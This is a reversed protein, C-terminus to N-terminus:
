IPQVAQARPVLSLRAPKAQALAILDKVSKVDLAPAVILVAAPFGLQTIGAFDKIPDYPLNPQLAANTVFAAPALLLTYGDPAAKAVQAAGLASGAGPRNEVVVPQGWSESMKHGIMRALTDPQSGPTYAVVLRIPKTPFEQQAQALGPLAALAIGM